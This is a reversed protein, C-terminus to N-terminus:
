VTYTIGPWFPTADYVQYMYPLIQSFILSPKALPLQGNALYEEMKACINYMVTLQVVNHCTSTLKVYNQITPRCIFMCNLTTISELSEYSRCM